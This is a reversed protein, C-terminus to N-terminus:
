RIDEFNTKPKQNLWLTQLYSKTYTWLTKLQNKEFRRPSAYVYINTDLVINGEKKLSKGLIVDEAMSLSTDFGRSKEYASKRVAFNFGCINKKNLYNNLKLFLIFLYRSLIKKLKSEYNLVGSGYVAVTNKNKPNSNDFHAAIKELWDESFTCDADTSVIIEGKAEAFGKKRAFAIGKQPEHILRVNKAKHRTVIEVTKDTSANDVIIIEFNKYTQSKLSNLCAGIYKEENYVPIVISLLPTKM